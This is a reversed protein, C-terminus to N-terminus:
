MISFKMFHVVHFEAFSFTRRIIFDATVSRSARILLDTLRYKENSPLNSAIESLKLRLERNLRWVDLKEFSEFENWSKM